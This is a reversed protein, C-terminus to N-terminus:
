DVEKMGAEICPHLMDRVRMVTIKIHSRYGRNCVRYGPEYDWACRTRDSLDRFMDVVCHGKYKACAYKKHREYYGLKYTM